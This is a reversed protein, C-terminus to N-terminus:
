PSQLAKVGSSCGHHWGGKMQRRFAESQPPLNRWSHHHLLQILEVPFASSLYAPPFALKRLFAPLLSVSGWLGLLLSCYPTEVQPAFLHRNQVCNPQSFLFILLKLALHISCSSIVCPEHFGFFEYLWFVFLIKSPQARAAERRCNQFTAEICTFHAKRVPNCWRPSFFEVLGCPSTSWFTHTHTCVHKGM